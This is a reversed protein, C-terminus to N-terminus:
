FTNIIIFFFGTFEMLFGFKNKINHLNNLDATEHLTIVLFSSSTFLTNKTFCKADKM